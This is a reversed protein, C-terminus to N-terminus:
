RGHINTHTGTELCSGAGWVSWRGLVRWGGRYTMSVSAVGGMCAELGSGEWRLVSLSTRARWLIAYGLWPGFFSAPSGNRWRCGAWMFMTLIHSRVEGGRQELWCEGVLAVEVRKRACGELFENTTDGDRGVNMYAVRVEKLGFDRDSSPM